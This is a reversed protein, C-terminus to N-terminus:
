PHPPNVDLRVYFRKNNRGKNDIKYISFKGVERTSHVHTGGCAQADFGEIAVVRVRGNKVPPKADLTRLLDDRQCFEEESIAYAKLPHDEDLVANVKSELEAALAPTFNELKFDIRSYDENIQVGTIWGNYDRLAITNLVHLVTHYRMLALRKDKNLILQAQQGVLNLPPVTKCVHWLVEDADEQISTVEFSQDNQFKIIGEDPPQGGGGPHFCTQDLAILNEHIVIATAETEFCHDDLLYLRTTPPIPIMAPHSLNILASVFPPNAKVSKSM